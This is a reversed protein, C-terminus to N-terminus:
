SEKQLSVCPMNIQSGKHSSQVKAHLACCLTVILDSFIQAFIMTMKISLIRSGEIMPRQQCTLDLSTTTAGQLTRYRDEGLLIYIDAQAPKATSPQETNTENCYKAAPKTAVTISKCGSKSRSHEGGCSPSSQNRAYQKSIDPTVSGTCCLYM